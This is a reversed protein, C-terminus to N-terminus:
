YEDQYHRQLKKLEDISDLFKNFEIKFIDKSCQLHFM